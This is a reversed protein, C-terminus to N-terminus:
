RIGLNIYGIVQGVTGRFMESHVYKVGLGPIIGANTFKLTEFFYGIDFVITAGIEVNGIYDITTNPILIAVGGSLSINLGKKFPIYQVGTILQITYIQFSDSSDSFSDMGNNLNVTWATTPSTKKGFLFDISIPIRILSGEEMSDLVNQIDYFYFTYSPGLSLQFIYENSEPVTESINKEEQSFIFNVSLIILLISLIYRRVKKSWTFYM